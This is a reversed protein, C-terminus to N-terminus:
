NVVVAVRPGPGGDSSDPYAYYTGRANWFHFFLTNGSGCNTWCTYNDSGGDGWYATFGTSWWQGSNWDLEFPIKNGVTTPSCCTWLRLIISAPAAPAAYTAPAESAAHAQPASFTAIASVLTLALVLLLMYRAIAKKPFTGSM